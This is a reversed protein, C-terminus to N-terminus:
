SIICLALSEPFKGELDVEEGLVRFNAKKKKKPCHLFRVRARRGAGGGGGDDM